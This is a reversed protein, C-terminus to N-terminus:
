KVFYITTKHLQADLYIVFLLMPTSKYETVFMEIKSM